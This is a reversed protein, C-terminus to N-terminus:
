IIEVELKSVNGLYKKIITQDSKSITDDIIDIAELGINTDFEVYGDTDFKRVKMWKIRVSIGWALNIGNCHFRLINLGTDLEFMNDGGIDSMGVVLIITETELRKNKGTLIGIQQEQIGIVQIGTLVGATIMMMTTQLQITNQVIRSM